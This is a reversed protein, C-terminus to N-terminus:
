FWLSCCRLVRCPSFLQLFSVPSGRSSSVVLKCRPWRRSASGRVVFCCWVIVIPTAHCLCCTWRSLLFQPLLSRVPLLLDQRSRHRLVLRKRVVPVEWVWNCCRSSQSFLRCRWLMRVRLHLLVLSICTGVERTRSGLLNRPTSVWCPWIRGVCCGLRMASVGQPLGEVVQALGCRLLVSCICSLLLLSSCVPTHLRGVVVQVVVSMACCKSGSEVVNVIAVLPLVVGRCCQTRERARCWWCLLGSQFKVTWHSCRCVVRLCCCTRGCAVWCCCWPYCGQLWCCCCFM